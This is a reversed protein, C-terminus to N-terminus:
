GGLRVAERLARMELQVRKQVEAVIQEQTVSESSSGSGQGQQGYLLPAQRVWQKMRQEAAATFLRPQPPTM